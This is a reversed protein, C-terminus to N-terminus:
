ESQPRRVQDFVDGGDLTLRAADQENALACRLCAQVANMVFGCIGCTYTESEAEGVPVIILVLRKGRYRDLYESPDLDGFQWGGTDSPYRLDGELVDAGVERAINALETANAPSVLVAAM